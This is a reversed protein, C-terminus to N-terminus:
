NLYSQGKKERLFTIELLKKKNKIVITELRLNSVKLYLGPLTSEFSQKFVKTSCAHSQM